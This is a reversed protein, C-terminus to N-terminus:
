FGQVILPQGDEGILLNRSEIVAEIILLERKYEPSNRGGIQKLEIERQRLYDVLQEYVAQKAEPRYITALKKLIQRQIAERDSRCIQGELIHIAEEWSSAIDVQEPSTLTKRTYFITKEHTDRNEEQKLIGLARAQVFLQSVNPNEPFVDWFPPEKYTHLPLPLDRSEGRLKARKAQILQEQWDQYSRRLDKISEVCRLSFGGIEQIFLICHQESEPLPMISNSNEVQDQLYPLLKVSGSDHTHGGSINLAATVHVMPTLDATSLEVQSLIIQPRATQYVRNISTRVANPEDQLLKCLRDSAILEQKLHNQELAQCVVRHTNNAIVAKFDEYNIDLYNLYNTNLPQSTNVLPSVAPLIDASLTRCIQDMGLEYRSKEDETEGALSEIMRQYLSNLEQRDYLKIGNIKLADANEAEHDAAQQFDDQLQQLKQQFQSLRQELRELHERLRAIVELGLSRSKRQILAVLSGELGNLLEDCYEEMQAQKNAGFSSKLRHIEQVAAIYRQQQYIENPQWAKESELYCEEAIKKFLQRVAIIFTDAFKLGKSRDQIINNLEQELALKGQQIVRDRNEYMKQLFDGQAREDPSLEQLHQARYEEM